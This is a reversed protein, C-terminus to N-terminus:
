QGDETMVDNLLAEFNERENKQIVSAKLPITKPARKTSVYQMLNAPKSPPVAPIVPVPIERLTELAKTEHTIDADLDLNDLALRELREPRNLYDWEASLVRLSEQESHANYSIESLKKETKQVSQSTQFLLTGLFVALIIAFLGSLRFM